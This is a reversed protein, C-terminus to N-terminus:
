RVLEAGKVPPPDSARLCAMCTVDARDTAHGDGDREHKATREGCWSVDDWLGGVVHEASFLPAVPRPVVKRHLHRVQAPTKGEHWRRAVPATVAAVRWPDRRRSPRGGGHDM